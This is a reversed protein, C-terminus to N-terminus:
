ALIPFCPSNYFWAIKSLCASIMERVINSSWTEAFANSRLENAGNLQIITELESPSKVNLTTLGEKSNVGVKTYNTLNSALSVLSTDISFSSVKLNKKTLADSIRGLVGTGPSTVFPDQRLIEAQV